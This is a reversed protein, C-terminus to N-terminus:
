VVEVLFLFNVKRKLWGHWVVMVRKGCLIISKM